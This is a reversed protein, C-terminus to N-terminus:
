GEFDDAFITDDGVEVAGVDCGAGYPRIEGRQDKALCQGLSAHDIALSGASPLYTATMGGHDGLSGLALAAASANIRNTQTDFGCTNGSGEINGSANALVGVDMACSGKLISNSVDVTVANGYGALVSGVVGAPLFGPAVFTVHRLILHAGTNSRYGIAAGRAGGSAAATTFTNNSFTSNSINLDTGDELLIAGGANDDVRNNVFTSGSVNWNAGGAAYLARATNDRFESDRITISAAADTRVPKANDVYRVGDLLLSMGANDALVSSRTITTDYVRASGAGFFRLNSDQMISNEITLAGAHVTLSSPLPAGPYLTGDVTSNRLTAEPPEADPNPHQYLNFIRSNQLLLTGYSRLSRRLESLYINMVSNGAVIVAGEEVVVDVLTVTSDVDSIVAADGDLAVGTLTLEAGAAANFLADEVTTEVRTQASGAGRVNLNQNVAELSGRILTYTGASLVIDDTGAFPDNADTVAIAERLSCDAPACVDPLPDDFRTVIFTAARVGTTCAALALAALVISPKM